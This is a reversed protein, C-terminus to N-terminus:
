GRYLVVAAVFGLLCGSVALGVVMVSSAWWGLAFLFAVLLGVGMGTVFGVRPWTYHAWVGPGIDRPPSGSRLGAHPPPLHPPSATQDEVPVALSDEISDRAEAEQNHVREAEMFYGERYLSVATVM